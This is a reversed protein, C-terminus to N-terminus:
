ETLEERLYEINKKTWEIEYENGKWAKTRKLRQIAREKKDEVSLRHKSEADTVGPIEYYQRSYPDEEKTDPTACFIMKHRKELLRDLRTELKAIEKKAEAKRRDRDCQEASVLTMKSFAELQELTYTFM